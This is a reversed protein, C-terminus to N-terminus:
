FILLFCRGHKYHEYLQQTSTTIIINMHIAPFKRQSIQVPDTETYMDKKLVAPQQLLHFCSLLYTVIIRSVTV